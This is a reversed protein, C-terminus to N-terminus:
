RSETQGDGRVSGAVNGPFGATSVPVTLRCRNRAMRRGQTIFCSNMKPEFLVDPYRPRMNFGRSPRAPSLPTLFRSEGTEYKLYEDTETELKRAMEEPSTSHMVCDKSENLRTALDTTM